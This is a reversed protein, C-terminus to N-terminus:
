YNALCQLVKQRTEAIAKGLVLESNNVKKEAIQQITNPTQTLEFRNSTNLSQCSFLVITIFSAEIFCELGNRM